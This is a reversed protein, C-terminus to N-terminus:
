VMQAWQKGSGKLSAVYAPDTNQKITKLIEPFQYFGEKSIWAEIPTGGVSSNIIGIPIKYKSYIKKAFFYTAAGFTLVDTPNAEKWTGPPLDSQAGDLNTKTSIFFNRIEPYNATAIEDPYKEKVREMPLVMNSQGSCLWVDGFLINTVTIKNKGIFTMEYPGGANQPPLEITWNGESNAKTKFTKGKFVLTVKEGPSAWGTINLKTDRQLVIGDSFIAPLKIAASATAVILFLLSFISFRILLHKLSM